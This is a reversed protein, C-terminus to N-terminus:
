PAEPLRSGGAAAWGRAPLLGKLCGLVVACGVAMCAVGACVGHGLVLLLMLLLVTVCGNWAGLGRLKRAGRLGLGAALLLVLLLPVPLLCVTCCCCCCCFGGLAACLLGPTVATAAHTPGAAGALLAAAAASLRAAALVPTSADFRLFTSVAVAATGVVPAWCLLLLGGLVATRGVGEAVACSVAPGKTGAALLVLLWLCGVACGATFCCSLDAAPPEAAAGSESAEVAIGTWGPPHSM